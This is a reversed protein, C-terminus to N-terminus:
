KAGIPTCIFISWVTCGTITNKFYKKIEITKIYYQVSDEKKWKKGKMLIPFHFIVLGCMQIAGCSSNWTIMNSIINHKVQWQHISILLSSKKESRTYFYVMSFGNTINNNINIKFFRFQNTIHISRYIQIQVCYHLM